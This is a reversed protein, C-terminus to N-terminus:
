KDILKGTNKLFDHAEVQSSNIKELCKKKDVDSFRTHHDWSGWIENHLFLEEEQYMKRHIYTKLSKSLSAPNFLIGHPNEKITFKHRLLKAGIQETFCSGALFLLQQHNIKDIFIM